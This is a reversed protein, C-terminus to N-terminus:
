TVQERKVTITGQFLRVTKVRTLELGYILKLTPGTMEYAATVASPFSVVFNNPETIVIRGNETSLVDVVKNYSPLLVSIHLAADALTDVVGETEYKIPLDLDQGQIIDFNFVPVDITLNTTTAM